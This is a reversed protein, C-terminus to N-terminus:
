VSGKGLLPTNPHAAGHPRSACWVIVCLQRAMTSLTHHKIMIGQVVASISVCVTQQVTHPWNRDSSPSVQSDKNADKFKKIAM